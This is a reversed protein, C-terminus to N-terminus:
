GQIRDIMGQLLDGIQRWRMSLMDRHSEQGEKSAQVHKVMKEVDKNYRTLIKLLIENVAKQDEEGDDSGGVFRAWKSAPLCQARLAAQTRYCVETRDLAYTGLFGASKLMEKKESSLSHLIYDDLLVEDCENGGPENAGPGIFGYETLLFDNSHNGYSIFLEEGKEYSRNTKVSYGELGSSVVCGQSAHNFYDAYPSFALRDEHNKPTKTGPAPSVFYFTRTNVLLWAYLYSDYSLKPYHSSAFTWDAHLKSKQTHLLAKAKAPLLDQLSSLYHIPM